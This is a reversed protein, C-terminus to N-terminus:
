PQVTKPTRMCHRYGEVCFSLVWCLLVCPSPCTKPPWGRRQMQVSADRPKDAVASNRTSIIFSNYSVTAV